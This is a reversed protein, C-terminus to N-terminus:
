WEFRVSGRLGTVVNDFRKEASVEGGFTLGGPGGMLRLRGFWGGDLDEGALTFDDGNEFRATTEGLSGGLIERWGGEAEMRLWGNDRRSRGMVDAGLVLSGNVGFQDSTRGDVDLDLAKGGGSETYGDEKLRLYDITVQPRFFFVKSGGEASLGAAFGVYRGDWDGEVTRSIQAGNATGTFTRKSDIKAMGVSGRAFGMLPGWKGRMHAAVEWSKSEVDSFADNTHQNYLNAVTVGVHGLKGVGFEAGFSFAHGQLDYAATDGIDKDGDWVALNMTATFDGSRAIPTLPDQMQRILIREGQSIGEFVGGAHDPLMSAFTQRFVDGDAISLFAGAIAADNGLADIVADYAAIGSANLGLQAATRRTVDVVITNAPATDDIEAKFLFPILTDDADLKDLGTISGASLVTYSGESGSVSALKLVLKSGEVFSADSGVTLATGAGATKSLTAVLTGTAGLSLSSISAPSAIDLTGGAVSVAVNGANALGGTFVSTGSLSLTGVASAFDVLGNYKSTGALSMTATGTGFLVKGTQVADGSLQLAANGAGFRVDGKLTGDALDLLDDGNGFLVDGNIAPAAIGSAVVTQRVTQGASGASLDIAINRGSGATAGSATIEGSNEILTVTGSQDRIAIATGNAGTTAAKITGSNRITPLNAGADVQVAVARTDVANSGSASITGSNALVPTTAGAGLRIATANSGLSYAAITGSNGIGNAISVGFGRGGILVANGDVGAYVGRGEVVGDIQLGYQSATGAVPGITIARTTSGISLAAASGYSVVKASGEKSDEIGDADEDNNSTSTDKPPVALVIGGGVNGEISIASGGQLLDDADLKATSSPATTSRYGTASISGQVVLAGSIDGGFRAGIADKGKVEVTGALRVKGDIAQADIGVARDGVVTTKGDHVLDGTLTGGLAIGASDNGEVLITGSQTIKGVHAGLTRIGFRNSGLAFPGDLDGDNDTDTATYAEDITITGTNVIDGTTGAIAAIGTAGNAGTITIAGANSVKHNTDMTVATGSTLVVSGASTIVITDPSGNKITSTALPETKKTTVDEARASTSGIALAAMATSCLLYRM